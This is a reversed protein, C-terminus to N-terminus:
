DHYCEPHDKIYRQARDTWDRWLALMPLPEVNGIGCHRMYYAGPVEISAELEPQRHCRPCEQFHFGHLNYLKM